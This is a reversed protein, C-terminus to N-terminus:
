DLRRLANAAPLASVIELSDLFAARREDSGGDLKPVLQAAAKWVAARPADSKSPIEIAGGLSGEVTSTLAQRSQVPFGAVEQPDIWWRSSTHGYTYGAVHPFRLRFRERGPVTYVEQPEVPVPPPSPIKGALWAFPVGFLNAYEIPQREDTGTFATKRLARGAVQECLLQSGFARYGFVHTM